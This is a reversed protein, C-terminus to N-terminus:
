THVIGDDNIVHMINKKNIMTYTKLLFVKSIACRFDISFPVCLPSTAGYCLLIPRTMETFRFCEAMVM